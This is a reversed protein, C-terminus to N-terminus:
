SWLRRYIRETLFQLMYTYFEESDESLKFNVKKGAEMVCHLLEHQLEGYYAPEDKWVPLVVAFYTHCTFTWVHTGDLDTERIERGIHKKTYASVGTIAALIADKDKNGYGLFVSFKLPYTNPTIHIVTRSM